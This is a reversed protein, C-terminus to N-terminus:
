DECDSIKVELEDMSWTNLTVATFESCLTTPDCFILSPCKLKRLKSMTCCFKAYKETSQSAKPIKPYKPHYKEPKFKFHNKIKIDHRTILSASVANIIIYNYLHATM